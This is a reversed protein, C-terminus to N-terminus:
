RQQIPYANPLGCLERRYETADAYFDEPPIASLFADLDVDADAHLAFLDRVDQATFLPRVQAGPEDGPIELLTRIGSRLVLCYVQTNM